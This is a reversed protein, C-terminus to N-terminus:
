GVDECYQVWWFCPLAARAKAITVLTGINPDAGAVIADYIKM